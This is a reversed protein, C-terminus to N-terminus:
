QLVGNVVIDFNVANVSNSVCVSLVTAENGVNVTLIGNNLSYSIGDLGEIKVDDGDVRFQIQSGVTTAYGDIASVSVAKVTKVPEVPKIEEKQTEEKEVPKVEEKAPEQPVVPQEKEETITLDTVETKGNAAEEKSVTNTETKDETPKETEETKTTSDLMNDLEDDTTDKICENEDKVPEVVEEKESPVEIASEKEEEKLEVKEQEKKSDDEKTEENKSIAIIGKDLETIDDGNKKAEEVAKRTDEEEKSNDEFTITKPEEGATTTAEAPKTTSKYSVNQIRDVPNKVSGYKGANKKNRSSTETEEEAKVEEPQVEAVPEETTEEVTMVGSDVVETVKHCFNKHWLGLTFLM